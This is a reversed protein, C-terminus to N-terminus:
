YSLRKILIRHVGLVQVGHGEQTRVAGDEVLLEEITVPPVYITRQTSESYALHIIESGIETM